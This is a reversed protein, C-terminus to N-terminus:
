HSLFGTILLPILILLSILAIATQPSIPIINKEPKAM